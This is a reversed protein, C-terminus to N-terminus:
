TAIILYVPIIKGANRVTRDIKIKTLVSPMLVASFIVMEIIAENISATM